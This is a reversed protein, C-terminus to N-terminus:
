LDAFNVKKYNRFGSNKSVFDPEPGTNISSPDIFTPSPKYPPFIKAKKMAILEKKSYKKNIKEKLVSTCTRPDGELPVLSEADVQIETSPIELPILQNPSRKLKTILGGGPSLLQVTCESVFGRKKKIHVIRCMRWKRRPLKGEMILCIEGLKPVILEQNAKKQRVHREFLEKLYHKSWLNWFSNRLKELHFHLESVKVESPDKPKNLNLYPPEGKNYGYILMSPSLAKYESQIDSYIYTLPRDNITSAATTALTRFDEFPVPNNGLVKYFTKKVSNNLREVFGGKNPAKETYFNWSIHNKNLFNKVRKSKAIQELEQSMRSFSKEHDSILSAPIGCANMFRTLARIFDDINRSRVAELHIARTSGCTFLIYWVKYKKGRGERCWFHGLYDLGTGFFPRNRVVRFEPLAPSPPISFTPGQVKKCIVCNKLIKQVFRRGQLIWFELRLHSLTDPVGAHGVEQHAKKVLLKSFSCMEMEGNDNKVMSPLLIPYVNAFDLGSKENRTTCRLVKLDADLFIAHNIFLSRSAASVVSKQDKILKFVEPFYKRQVARIWLVEARRSTLEIKEEKESEKLAKRKIIKRFCSAREVFSETVEMLHDYDNKSFKELDEMFNDIEPFEVKRFEKNTSSLRISNVSSEPLVKFCSKDLVSSVTANVVGLDRKLQSRMEDKCTKSIELSQYHKDYGTLKSKGGLYLDGKWFEPGNCWFSNNVLEQLATGRSPLDAPNESTDIHIWNKVLSRKKITKIQNAVFPKWSLHGSYLWFIVDASDTFWFIDEQPIDSYTVKAHDMINTLLVAALLELRPISHKIKPAVRAKSLILKSSVVGQDDTSLLYVCAGYAYSSADCCGVLRLKTLNVIGAHRDFSVNEIHGFESAWSLAEEVFPQPLRSDWGKVQECAQSIIMKGRITYPSLLGMPDYVSPVLKWLHRKTKLKKSLVEQLKDANVTIQDKELDWKIGLVKEELPPERNELEGFIKRAEPHNSTWERFNM